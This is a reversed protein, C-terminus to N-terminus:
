QLTFPFYLIPIILHFNLISSNFSYYSLSFTCPTCPSPYSILSYIIILIKTIIHTPILHSHPYHPDSIPPNTPYTPPILPFILHAYFSSTPFHYSSLPFHSFTHSSYPSLLSFPISNLSHMIMYWYPSDTRRHDISFRFIDGWGFFDSTLGYMISIISPKGEM